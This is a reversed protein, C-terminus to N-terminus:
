TTREHNAFQKRSPDVLNLQTKLIAQTILHELPRHIKMLPEIPIPLRPRAFATLRKDIM